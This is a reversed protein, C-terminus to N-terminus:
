KKVSWDYLQFHAELAAPNCSHITLVNDLTGDESNCWKEYLRLVEPCKYADLASVTKIYAQPQQSNSLVDPPTVKSSAAMRAKPNARLLAESHTVCFNRPVKIIM